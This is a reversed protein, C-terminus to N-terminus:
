ERSKYHFLIRELRLRNYRQVMIFPLNAIVGYGVMLWGFIQENWLFFLPAPVMSLWHTWEGRRAELAFKDYYSPDRSSLRKKSFGKKFLGSGEPLRDKWLQICIKSYITLEFSIRPQLASYPLM